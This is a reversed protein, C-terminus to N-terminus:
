GATTGDGDFKEGEFIEDAEQDTKEDMMLSWNWELKPRQEPDQELITGMISSLDINYDDITRSPKNFHESRFEYDGNSINPRIVHTYVFVSSPAFYEKQIDDLISRQSTTPVSRQERRRDQRRRRKQRVRSNRNQRTAETSNRRTSSSSESTSKQKSSSNTNEGRRFYRRRKAKAAERGRSSQRSDSGFVSSSRSGSRQSSSRRPSTRRSRSPKQESM